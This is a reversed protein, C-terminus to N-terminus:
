RKGRKKCERDSLVWEGAHVNVWISYVSVHVSYQAKILMHVYGLPLSIFPKFSYLLCNLIFYLVCNVFIFWQHWCIFYSYKYVDRRMCRRRNIKLPWSKIGLLWTHVAVCSSHLPFFLPTVWLLLSVGHTYILASLKSFLFPFFVSVFLTFPQTYYSALSSTSTDQPAMQICPLLLQLRHQAARCKVCCWWWSFSASTTSQQLRASSWVSGCVLRHTHAHTHIVQLEMTRM